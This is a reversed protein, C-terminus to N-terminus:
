QRKIVSAFKVNDPTTVAYETEPRSKLFEDIAVKAGLCTSAHYDDCIIVGGKIMKPWFINLADMYSQYVDVDLHVFSFKVNDIVKGTDQPFIGRHISVGEYKSLRDKVEEFSTKFDGVKHHNDHKGSHPIGEFTDFLYLPKEKKYIALLEATGGKYVGVEACAGGLDHTNLLEARLLDMEGEGVLSSHPYINKMVLTTPCIPSSGM